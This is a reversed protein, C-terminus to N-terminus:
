QVIGWRLLSWTTDFPAKSTRLKIIGVSEVFHAEWALSDGSKNLWESRMDYVNLFENGNVSEMSYVEYVGSGGYNYLTYVPNKLLSYSFGISSIEANFLPISLSTTVIDFSSYLHSTFAVTAYEYNHVPDSEYSHSSHIGSMFEKVYTCDQAGTKENLYIWYSGPKYCTWLRFEDPIYYNIDQKKCGQFSMFTISIMLLNLSLRFWREM